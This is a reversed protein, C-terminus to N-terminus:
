ENSKSTVCVIEEEVNVTTGLKVHRVSGMAHFTGFADLTCVNTDSDFM